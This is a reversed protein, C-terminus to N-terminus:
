AGQKWSETEKQGIKERTDAETDDESAAQEAVRPWGHPGERWHEEGAKNETEGLGDKAGSM